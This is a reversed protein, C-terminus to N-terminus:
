QTVRERTDRGLGLLDRIQVEFGNKIESADVKLCDKDDYCKKINKLHQM